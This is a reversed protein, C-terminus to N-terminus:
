PPRLRWDVPVNGGIDWLLTILAQPALHDGAPCGFIGKLEPTSELALTSGDAAVIRLFGRYRLQARSTIHHAERHLRRFLYRLSKEEPKARAQTLAAPSPVPHGPAFAQHSKEFVEALAL